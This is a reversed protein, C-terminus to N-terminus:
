EKQSDIFAQLIEAAAIADLIKKKKKHTLGIGAIHKEASFSSLREDHFHIPLDILGGLEEAFDRSKKAAVGETGDMNLPLGVVIEGVQNDKVVRVIEDIMAGNTPLVTLPSVITHNEDCIALGTRKGGLDIALIRM